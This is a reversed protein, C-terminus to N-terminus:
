NDKADSKEKEMLMDFYKQCELNLKKIRSDKAKIKKQLKEILEDKASFGKEEYIGQELKAIKKLLKKNKNKQNKWLKRYHFMYKIKQKM